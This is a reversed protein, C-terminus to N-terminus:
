DLSNEAKIGAVSSCFRYPCRGNEDHSTLPNQPRPKTVSLEDSWAMRSLRVYLRLVCTLYALAM